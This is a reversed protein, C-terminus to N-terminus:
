QAAEVHTWKRGVRIGSVTQKSVAYKAALDSTRAGANFAAKMEAVQWNKLKARPSREGRISEVKDYYFAAREEDSMLHERKNAHQEAWTAWRCNAPSYGEMVNIRDLTLGDPRRGMDSLFAEFGTMGGEGYRWRSCVTVGKAGYFRFNPASPLYCRDLMQRYVRYEPMKSVAVRQKREPRKLREATKKERSQWALKHSSCGCSRHKGKTLNVTMAVVTAGCDCHLEWAPMRRGSSLVKDCPRIATLMGYRQGVRNIIKPM